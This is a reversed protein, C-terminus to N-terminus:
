APSAGKEMGSLRVPFSSSFSGGDSAGGRPAVAPLRSGSTTWAALAKRPQGSEM